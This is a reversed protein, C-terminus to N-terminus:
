AGGWQAPAQPRMSDRLLGAQLKERELKIKEQADFMAVREKSAIEERAITLRIENDMQAKQMTAQAKIQEATLCMQVGGAGRKIGQEAM